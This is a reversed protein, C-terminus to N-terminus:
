ARETRRGASLQAQLAKLEAWQGAAALAAQQPWTAPNNLRLGAELLVTRLAEVDAQALDAFTHIGNAQLVSSIKPGIGELLTLDDQYSSAPPATEAGPAASSMRLPAAKVAAPSDDPQKAAAVPDEPPTITAAQASERNLLWAVLATLILLIV